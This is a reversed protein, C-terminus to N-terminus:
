NWYLQYTYPGVLGSNNKDVALFDSVETGNLKNEPLFRVDGGLRMENIGGKHLNVSWDWSLPTRPDDKDKIIYHGVYFTWLSVYFYDSQIDNYRSDPQPATVVGHAAPCRFINANRAYGKNIIFGPFQGAVPQGGRGLPAGPLEGNNDNAYLFLATRIQKLNSICNIAYAKERAKGFVPFLIAALIAIIAIVVLLEILTFGKNFKNM